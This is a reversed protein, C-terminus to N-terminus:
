AYVFYDEKGETFTGPSASTRIVKQTFSINVNGM